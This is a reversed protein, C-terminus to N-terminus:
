KQLQAMVYDIVRSMLAALEARTAPEDPRFNGNQDGGILGKEHLSDVVPCAWHSDSLDKFYKSMHKSVELKVANDIASMTIQGVEGDNALGNTEQFHKICWDTSSCFYGNPEIQYGLIVLKKQLSTIADSFFGRRLVSSNFSPLQVGRQFDSIIYGFTYEFHPEDPFSNWSGGWDLSISQGIHGVSTYKDHSDWDIDGNPSLIAIDFAVRYNHNSQGGKANTVIHKCVAGSQKCSDCKTTRGQNYLANQEEISRYGQTIIIEYGKGYAVEILQRARLAVEPHLQSLRSEAKNLLSILDM